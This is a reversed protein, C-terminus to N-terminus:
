KSIRIGRGIHSKGGRESIWELELIIRYVPGIDRRGQKIANLVYATIDAIEIGPTVSSDAFVVLQVNQWQRGLEHGFTYRWFSSILKADKARESEDFVLVGFEPPECEACMQNIREILRQYWVSLLREDIAIKPRQAAHAFTRCGFSRCTEFLRTVAGVIEPCKTITDENLLERGKLEFDTYGIIRGPVRHGPIRQAGALTTEDRGLERGLKIGKPTKFLAFEVPIYEKTLEKFGEYLVRCIEKKNAFIESHFERARSSPLSIAGLVAWASAAKHHYQGSEDVFFLM